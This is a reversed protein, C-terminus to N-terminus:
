RRAGKFIHMLILLGVIALIICLMGQPLNNQSFAFATPIGFSSSNPLYSMDGPNGNGGTIM